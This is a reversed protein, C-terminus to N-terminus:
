LTCCGRRWQRYAAMADDLVAALLGGHVVGDWGQHEASFVVSSRSINNEKDVDFKLKLGIPNSKGCVFCGDERWSVREGDKAIEDKISM